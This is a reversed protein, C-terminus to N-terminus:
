NGADAIRQLRQSALRAASTDAFESRVRELAERAASWRRLEYNCYGIKLLADPVKRSDPYEELVREFKGLADEFDRQVYATEALWYQANDSLPSDPFSQLFQRFANASDEYRGERLLEFAAQYNARDGGDPLPLEGPSVSGGAAGATSVSAGIQSARQEIREIRDDLDAYQQRQRGQLQELERILTEVEGRLAQNERQARELDQALQVLNGSDLLREVRLMRTEVDILRLQVPDEDPPLAACAGLSLAAFVLLPAAIGRRRGLTDTGVVSTM